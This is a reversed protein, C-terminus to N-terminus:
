IIWAAGATAFEPDVGLVSRAEAAVVRRDTWPQIHTLVLQKAGSEQALQAARVGSLHIGSSQDRETFGCESLLLDCNRAMKVMEACKDTDGTYCLTVRRDVASLGAGMSSTSVPAGTVTEAGAVSGADIVPSPVGAAPVQEAMDELRLDGAPGEIRLGFSPVSHWGPYPTVMFPGVRVAQYERLDQYDFVGAYTESPAAGEIQQIRTLTGSPGFVKVPHRAGQPHWRTYVHLSMIDAIHDAHGHSLFVADVQEVPLPEMARWLAGFAGPGLDLVLSWVRRGAYAQVLYCSAASAPGSMSGTCGIVTLKM